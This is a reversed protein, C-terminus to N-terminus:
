IAQMSAQSFNVALFEQPADTTPHASTSLPYLLFYRLKHKKGGMSEPIDVLHTSMVCKVQKCYQVLRNTTLQSSDYFRLTLRKCNLVFLYGYYLRVHVCRSIVFKCIFGLFFSIISQFDLSGCQIYAGTYVQSIRPRLVGRSWLGQILLNFNPYLVLVLEQIVTGISTELM